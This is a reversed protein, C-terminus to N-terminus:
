PPTLAQAAAQEGAPTLRYLGREVRAFWGYHNRQLIRAAEPALDKLARPPKPGERLAGACALAQQRYATMVPGRTGGPTPDGRRRGHERLLLARRRLNPRPRYPAPEALVEVARRAPDVALLGFGLLRCLRHARRDRDRGRRTAPVALWVEDAAALRDVGQLLLELTLGLKLEAIVLAPPEGPRVAVIDCGCVEGKAEYGLAELHAKVLAYLSTEPPRRSARPL